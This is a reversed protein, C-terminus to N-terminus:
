QSEGIEKSLQEVTKTHTEIERDFSALQTELQTVEKQMKYVESDNDLTNLEKKIAIFEELEEFAYNPKLNRLNDNVVPFLKKNLEIRRKVFDLMKQTHAKAEAYQKLERQANELAGKKNEKLYDTKDMIEGTKLM